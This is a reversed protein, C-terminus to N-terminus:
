DRPRFVMSSKSSVLRRHDRMLDLSRTMTVVLENAISTDFGMAQLRAIVCKVRGIREKGAVIRQDASVIKADHADHSPRRLVDRKDASFTYKVAGVIDAAMAPKGIVPAAPWRERLPDPNGTYFAFPIQRRDLVECIPDAEQQGLRIDVIGASLAQADALRLANSVCSAAFVTASEWELLNQLEITILPEDEVILLRHSELASHIMPQGEPAALRM